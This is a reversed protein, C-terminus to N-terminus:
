ISDNNEERQAKFAKLNEHMRKTFFMAERAKTMLETHKLQKGVRWVIRCQECVQFHGLFRMRRMDAEDAMGTSGNMVFDTNDGSLRYEENELLKTHMRHAMAFALRMTDKIEENNLQKGIRWIERFKEFVSASGLWRDNDMVEDSVPDCRKYPM